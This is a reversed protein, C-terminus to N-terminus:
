GKRFLLSRYKLPTNGELRRFTKNFHQQNSFGTAFAIEKISNKTNFMLEKAKELRLILIYEVPSIGLHKVFISRLYRSSIDCAKAVQEVSISKTYSSQIFKLANIIRENNHTQDLQLIGRLHRSLLISLQAYYLRIIAQYHYEHV